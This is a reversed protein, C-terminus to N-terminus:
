ASMTRPSSASSTSRSSATTVWPMPTRRRAAQDIAIVVRGGVETVVMEVIDDQPLGVWTLRITDDDVNEVISQACRVSM